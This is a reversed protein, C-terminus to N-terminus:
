AHIIGYPAAFELRACAKNLIKLTSDLKDALDSFRWFRHSGVWVRVCVDNLPWFPRRGCQGGAGGVVKTQRDRVECCYSPM